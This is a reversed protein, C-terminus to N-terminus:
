NTFVSLIRFNRCQLWSLHYPISSLSQCLSQLSFPNFFHRHYPFFLLTFLLIATTLYFFPNFLIALPGFANKRAVVMWFFEVRKGFALKKFSINMWFLCYKNQLFLLVWNMYIDFSKPYIFYHWFKSFHYGLIRFFFSLSRDAM